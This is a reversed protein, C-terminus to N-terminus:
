SSFARRAHSDDGCIIGGGYSFFRGCGLPISRIFGGFVQKWLNLVKKGQTVGKVGNQRLGGWASSVGFGYVIDVAGFGIQEDGSNESDSYVFVVLRGYDMWVVNSVFFVIM